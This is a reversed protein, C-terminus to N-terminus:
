SVGGTKEIILQPTLVQPLVVPDGSAPYYVYLPVGSRGFGSLWRTIAPDANTWDAAIVTIGRATFANKVEPTDLAVKENVKCSICWAATAYVFVPKGSTRAQEIRAPDFATSTVPTKPSLNLLSVGIILAAAVGIAVRWLRVTARQLLWVAFAIVVLGALIVAVGDAGSQQAVVWILWVLTLYVPFALAQRFTEMWAGPKPMWRLLSPFWSLLLFPFAMGLGLCLFILLAGLAPLTLAAGLAGAMFPATCPTAVLTALAGTAFSGLWDHRGAVSQGGGFSLTIDFVGSLNLAVLFMLYILAGVFLPSQMQYGWGVAAGGAKILLLVAGVILFSVVVGATYALADTRIRARDTGARSIALAKLSLVPFVCPMANLIIGGAFAALVGLALTLVPVSSATPPMVGSLAAPAQGVAYYTVSGDHVELLGNMVAPVDVIGRKMTVTLSGDAVIASQPAAPEIVGTTDPFFYAERVTGSYPVDLRIQTEDHTIKGAPLVTLTASRILREIDGARASPQNAGVGLTLDLVTEEPVCEEACVLWSAALKLPVQAGKFGPPPTIRVLHYAAGSYGYNLLPGFPQREPPQWVVDSATFGQPLTWDLTPALGSDGPNIWYTHWGTDIDLQFLVWFASQGDVRDFQSGLSARTHGLEAKAAAQAKLPCVVAWVTLLFIVLRRM